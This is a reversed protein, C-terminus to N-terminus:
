GNTHELLKVLDTTSAKSLRPPLHRQFKEPVIRYIRGRDNGSNLDLHKKLNPPPSWPPEIVERYMDATHLCGDPPNAFQVPRFWTDTSALFEVKQEDAPREARLVIGDGRLKKRHVLNGGADGIFADGVFDEGYADGRYITLGTAGTFYGSARGGG